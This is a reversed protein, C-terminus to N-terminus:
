AWEAQVERTLDVTSRVGIDDFHEALFRQAALRGQDRLLAFFDYDTNLQSQSDVSKLSDELAIRHM